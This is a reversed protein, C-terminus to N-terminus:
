AVASMRDEYLTVTEQERDEVIDIRIVRISEYPGQDRVEKAKAIAEEKTVFSGGHFQVESGPKRHRVIFRERQLVWQRGRKVVWGVVPWTNVYSELYAATDCNEPVRQVTQLERFKPKRNTGFDLVSVVYEPIKHGEWAKEVRAVRARELATWDTGYAPQAIWGVAHAVHVEGDIHLNMKMGKRIGEIPNSM